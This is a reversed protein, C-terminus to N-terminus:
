RMLAQVRALHRGIDQAQASEPFDNEITRYVGQAAELSGAEEYARGASLLYRPSTLDNEFHAAAQEYLSAAREFDGENEAIAARAAIAGAGLFDEDKDYAQYLADAQQYQGLQYYADAAYYRALNAADTGGYQEIVRLLGDRDGTGDLAMQYDGREYVGVIEALVERAAEEQQEMYYGYGTAGLAVLVLAALVGIVLARNDEFFFLARDALTFPSSESAAPAATDRAPAASTQESTPLAAMPALFLTRLFLSAFSM